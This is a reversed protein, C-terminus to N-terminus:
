RIPSVIKKKFRNEKRKKKEYFYQNVKSLPVGVYDAINYEGKKNKVKTWISSKASVAFLSFVFVARVSVVM